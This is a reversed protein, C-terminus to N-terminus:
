DVPPLNMLQQARVMSQQGVQVFGMRPTDIDYTLALAAALSVQLLGRLIYSRSKLDVALLVSSMVGLMLLIAWSLSPIRNESAATRKEAAEISVTLAALFQITAPDRRAVSEDNAAHWMRSHLSASARLTEAYALGDPEADFFNIRVPLYQRLFSRESSRAPETLFSTRLWLTVLDSAETIQLQRREEFRSNAMSFTFGLLVGFLGLSAGLLTKVSLEEPEMHVKKSSRLWLGVLAGASFLALTAVFFSVPHIRFM